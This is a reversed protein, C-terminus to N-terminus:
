LVKITSYLYCGLYYITFLVRTGLLNMREICDTEYSEINWWNKNMVDRDDATIVVVYM